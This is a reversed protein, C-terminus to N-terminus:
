ERPVDLSVGAAEAMRAQRALARLCVAVTGAFMEDYVPFAGSAGVVIGDICVGGTLVTDHPRLLQPYLQQMEHGDRGSRWSLLAKARAFAAYDADWANRDGFAHEHLVAEDFPVSGAPMGPNMIVLYLFGSGVVSRDQMAADIMPSVLAVAQRALAQTVYHSGIPTRHAEHM